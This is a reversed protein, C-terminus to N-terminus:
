FLSFLKSSFIRRLYIWDFLSNVFQRVTAKGVQVLASGLTLSITDHDIHGNVLKKHLMEDPIVIRFCVTKRKCQESATHLADVAGLDLHSIKSM